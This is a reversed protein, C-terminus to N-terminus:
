RQKRIWLMPNQPRGRHWIEFHVLAGGKTGGETAYGLVEGAEVPEGKGKSLRSLDSLVSYHKQGHDVIVLNGYGRFWDAYIVEGEWVAHVPTDPRTRIDIGRNMVPVQAGPDSYTGFARFLEGEVPWPLMGKRSVFPAGPPAGGGAPHRARPGAEETRAAKRILAELKEASEGLEELLRRHLNEDKELRLRLRDKENRKALLDREQIHIEGELAKEESLRLALGQEVVAREALLKDYSRIATWDRDLIRRLAELDRLKRPLTSSSFLLPLMGDRGLRYYADLREGATRRLSRAQGELSRLEERLHQSQWDLGQNRKRCAGLKARTEAINRGLADLSGLVGAKGERIKEVIGKEKRIQKRVEQLRDEPRTDAAALGALRSATLLVALALALAALPPLV